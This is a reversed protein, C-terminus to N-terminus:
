EAEMLKMAIKMWSVQKIEWQDKSCDVSLIKIDNTTNGSKVLKKMQEIAEDETLFVWKDKGVDLLYFVNGELKM